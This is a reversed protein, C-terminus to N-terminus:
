PIAKKRIFRGAASAPVGAIVGSSSLSLGTPLSGATLSFAPSPLYSNTLAESYQTGVFGAPLTPPTNITPPTIEASAGWSMVVLITAPLVSGM